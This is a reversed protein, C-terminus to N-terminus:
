GHHALGRPAAVDGHWRRRQEVTPRRRTLPDAAENVPLTGALWFMHPLKESVHGHLKMHEPLMNSLLGAAFKSKIAHLVIHVWSPTRPLRVEPTLRYIGASARCATALWPAMLLEPAQCCVDNRPLAHPDAWSIAQMATVPVDEGPGGPGVGLLSFHAELFGWVRRHNQTTSRKANVACALVRMQQAAAARLKTILHMAVDKPLLNLAEQLVLGCPVPTGPPPRAWPVPLPEALRM